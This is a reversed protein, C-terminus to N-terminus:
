FGITIRADSFTTGQIRDGKTMIRKIIRASFILGRIPEIQSELKIETWAQLDAGKFLTYWQRTKDNLMIDGGVNEVKGTLPNIPNLGKRVYAIQAMGWARYPLFKKIQFAFEDSNPGLPFGLPFGRQEAANLRQWHSYVYPDIRTYSMGFRFAYPLTQYLGINYAVKNVDKDNSGSGWLQSFEVLDDILITAFVETGRLPRIIIDAGVMANDRDGNELESFFYSNVPNLYSYDASRNSYMLYESLSFELWDWPRLTLRHTTIWREPSVRTRVTDSGTIVTTNAPTAYLAGHVSTFSAWGLKLTFRLWNFNPSDKSLMLSHTMSPGLQLTGSGLDLGLVGSYISISNSMTQTAPKKQTVVPFTSAYEPIYTLLRWDGNVFINDAEFHLGLFDNFTGYAHFGKYSARGWRYVEPNTQEWANLEAWGYRLGISANVHMTTDVFTFLTPNPREKWVTKAREKYTKSKDLVVKHLENEGIRKYDFELLYSELLHRDSVSLKWFMTNSESNQKIEKLLKTIQGRTLPISEYDYNKVNGAVRQHLLWDYVQHRAPVLSHQASLSQVGFIFVIFVLVFLRVSRLNSKFMYQYDSKFEKKFSVM